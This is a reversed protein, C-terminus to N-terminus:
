NYSLRRENRVWERVRKEFENQADVIQTRVDPSGGNITPSFTFNYNVQGASGNLGGATRKWSIYDKNEDATLVGEGRHLEAKYGDNPVYSLGSRHSGDPYIFRDQSMDRQSYYGSHLKDIASATEAIEKIEQEKKANGLADIGIAAGGMGGVLAGWPGFRSGAAAGTAGTLAVSLIPHESIIKQLGDWLGQGMAGGVKLGAETIKPLSSDIVSITAEVFTQAGKQIVERGSSNYWTDFKRELDAFVVDIKESFPLKQFKENSFYNRDLYDFARGGRDLLYEGFDAAGEAMRGLAQGWREFMRTARDSALFNNLDKMFPKLEELARNGSRAFGMALNSKFNDWQASASENVKNLYEQTFGMKTLIKDLENLKGNFSTAKRLNALMSKPINFREALSVTDGSLAERISFAAGEMGETPNSAALREQLRVARNIQDLEKTLPLFAKAGELFDRESFVSKMGLANMQEFLTNAKTADQLLAELQLSQMELGAAGTVSKKALGFLGVGSAVALAGGGLIGMKALNGATRGLSRFGRDLSNTITRARQMTRNHREEAERLRDVARREDDMQNRIKVHEKRYQEADIEGKRYQQNLKQMDIQLQGMKASASSFTRNMSSGLKGDIKLSVEYTKRSM